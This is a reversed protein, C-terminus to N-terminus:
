ICVILIRIHTSTCVVVTVDRRWVSPPFYFIALSEGPDSARKAVRTISVRCFRTVVLLIFVEDNWGDYESIHPIRAAWPM